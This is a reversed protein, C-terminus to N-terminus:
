SEALAFFGCGCQKKSQLVAFIKRVAASNRETIIVSVLNQGRRAAGARNFVIGRGVQASNEIRYNFFIGVQHKVRYNFGVSTAGVVAGVAIPAIVFLETKERHFLDLALQFPKRLM